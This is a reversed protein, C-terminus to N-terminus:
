SASLSVKAISCIGGSMDCFVMFAESGTPRIAYVGSVRVGRDFLETCDLWVDPGLTLAFM